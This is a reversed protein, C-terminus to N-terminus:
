TNLLILKAGRISTSVFCEDYEAFSPFKMKDCLTYIYVDSGVISIFNRGNEETGYRTM